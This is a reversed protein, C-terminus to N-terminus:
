EKTNLKIVINTIVTIKVLSNIMILYKKCRNGFSLEKIKIFNIILIINIFILKIM